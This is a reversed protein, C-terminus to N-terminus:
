PTDGTELPGLTLALVFAVVALLISLWLRREAQHIAVASLILLAALAIM